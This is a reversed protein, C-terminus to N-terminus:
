DASVTSSLFPQYSYSSPVVSARTESNTRRGTRNAPRPRLAPDCPTEHGTIPGVSMRGRSMSRSVFGLTPGATDTAVAPEQTLAMLFLVCQACQSIM